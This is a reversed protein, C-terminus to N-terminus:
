KPTSRSGHQVSLSLCQPPNGGGASANYTLVVFSDDQITNALAILQASTSQCSADNGTLDSNASCLLTTTALTANVNCYFFETNSASNYVDGITGSITGTSGAVTIVVPNFMHMGASASGFFCMAAVSTLVKLSLKMSVM